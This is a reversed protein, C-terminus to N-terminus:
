REPTRVASWATAAFWLVTTLLVLFLSIGDVGLQYRVGLDPIWSSDVSHQLGGAGTDFNAVLGIALGLATLTGVVALWPAARRPALLCALAFGLPLWLLVNLM